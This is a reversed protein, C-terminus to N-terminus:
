KEFVRGVGIAQLIRDEIEHMERHDQPDHDDYGLLHLIGHLGYLLVELSPDHGLEDARREAEDICIYIEGEIPQEDSEALDFTLVDTTTPDDSFQTHLEIMRADNIIVLSVSAEEVNLEDLAAELREALWTADLPSEDTTDIAISIRELPAPASAYEGDPGQPPQPQPPAQEDM